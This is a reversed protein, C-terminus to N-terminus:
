AAVEVVINVIRQLLEPGAMRGFRDDMILEQVLIEAHERKSEPTCRTDSGWRCSGHECFKDVSHPMRHGCCSSQCRDADSCIM